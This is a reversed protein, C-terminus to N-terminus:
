NGRGLPNELRTEMEALAADMEELYGLLPTEAIPIEIPVDLKLPVTTVVDVTHSVPVTVEMDVPFVTNIPVNVDYTTVGLDVPVVVTTNIPVTTNVPITVEEHFPVSANIPIERDVALTYSFTDDGIGNVLARADSLTDLALRRGRLLGAIIVINLTLSLLTLIILATLTAPYLKRM